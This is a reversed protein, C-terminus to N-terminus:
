EEAREVDEYQEVTLEERVEIVGPVRSAVEEANEADSLFPVRGRLTVVGRFVSVDIDLDTTAADELLERRIASAIAEDGYQNDLASREVDSSEMSRDQLGGAIDMRGTRPNRGVVPDMPPTCVVDGEQVIDRDMPSSPGSAEWSSTTTHDPGQFDGAELRTAEFGEMAGEFMSTEVESLDRDILPDAPEREQIQHITAPLVGLIELNDEVRREGAVRMAVNLARDREEESEVIGSVVIRDDLEEVVLGELEAEALQREIDTLRPM